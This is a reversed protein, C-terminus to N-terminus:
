WADDGPDDFKPMVCRGVRPAFPPQRPQFEKAWYTISGLAEHCARFSPLKLEEALSQEAVSGKSEEWGEILWIADCRRLLSETIIYWLEPTATGFHHRYMTHPCVPVVGADVLPLIWREALRINQEVALHDGATLPGAIYVHQMIGLKSM